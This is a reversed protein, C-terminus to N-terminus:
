DELEIDEQDDDDDDDDDDDTVLEEADKFLDEEDDDLPDIDIDEGYQDEERAAQLLDDDEELYRVFDKAYPRPGKDEQSPFSPRGAQSPHRYTERIIIKVEDDNVTTLAAVYRNGGKTLKILRQGLEPRLHGLVIDPESVVRVVGKDAQLNVPDGAAFGALVNAAAPQRLTTVVTKGMEELFLHPALRETSRKVPPAANAVLSELRRVNKRAIANNPDLELTVQYAALAKQYQGSELLAKGLRNRAETDTPFLNLISENVRIAEQWQGHMALEIAQQTLSRRLKGKGGPSPERM